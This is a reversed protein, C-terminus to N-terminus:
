SKDDEPGRKRHDVYAAFRVVLFIAPFVYFALLQLTDLITLLPSAGFGLLAGRHAPIFPSVALSTAALATSFNVAARNLRWVFAALVLLIVSVALGGAVLQPTALSYAYLLTSGAVLSLASAVLLVALFLGM